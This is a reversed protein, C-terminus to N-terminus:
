KLEFYNCVEKWLCFFHFQDHKNHWTTNEFYSLTKDVHVHIYMYTCTYILDTIYLINKNNVRMSVSSKKYWWRIEKCNDIHLNHLYDSYLSVWLKMEPVLLALSVKGCLLYFRHWRNTSRNAENLFNFLCVQVM